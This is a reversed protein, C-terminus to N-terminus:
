NATNTPQVVQTTSDGDAAERFVTLKAEANAKEKKLAELKEAVVAAASTGEVSRQMAITVKIDRDLCASFETYVKVLAQKYLQLISPSMTNIDLSELQSVNARLQDCDPRSQAHGIVVLCMILIFCLSSKLLIRM